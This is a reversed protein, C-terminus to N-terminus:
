ETDEEKKTFRELLFTELIDPLISNYIDEKDIYFREVKCEMELTKKYQEVQEDTNLFAGFDKQVQEQYKKDSGLKDEDIENLKKFSEYADTSFDKQLDIAKKTFRLNKKAGYLLGDTLKLRTGDFMRRLITKGDDAIKPVNFYGDIIEKLNNHDDAIAKVTEVLAKDSKDTSSDKKEFKVKTASKSM